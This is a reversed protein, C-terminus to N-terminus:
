LEEPGRKGVPGSSCVVSANFYFRREEGGRGERVKIVDIRKDKVRRKDRWM